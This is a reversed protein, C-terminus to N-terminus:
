TQYEIRYSVGHPAGAMRNWEIICSCKGSEKEDQEEEYMSM